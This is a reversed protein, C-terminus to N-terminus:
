KDSKSLFDYLATASRIAGLLSSGGFADGILYLKPAVELFLSKTQTNPQCYRWKKLEADKIKATPYNNTFADLIKKLILEDPHEFEEESFTPSMTITLASIKSVGKAKQDSISFFAGSQFEIYGVTGIELDGELTVLGILAKTYSINKIEKFIVQNLL